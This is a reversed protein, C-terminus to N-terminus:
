SSSRRLDAAGCTPARGVGREREMRPEILASHDANNHIDLRETVPEVPMGHCASASRACCAKCAAVMVASVGAHMALSPALSGGELLSETRSTGCHRKPRRGSVHAVPENATCKAPSFFSSFAVRNRWYSLLTNRSSESTLVTAAREGDHEEEYNTPLPIRTM